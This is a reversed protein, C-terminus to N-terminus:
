PTKSLNAAKGSEMHHMICSDRHHALRTVNRFTLTQM